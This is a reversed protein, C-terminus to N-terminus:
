HVLATDTAVCNADAGTDYPCSQVVSFPLAAYWPCCGPLAEWSSTIVAAPAVVMYCSVSATCVRM